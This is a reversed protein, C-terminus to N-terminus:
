GNAPIELPKTVPEKKETAVAKKVETTAPVPAQPLPPPLIIIQSM